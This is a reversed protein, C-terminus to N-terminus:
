PNQGNKEKIAKNIKERLSLLYEASRPYNRFTIPEIEEEIMKMVFERGYLSECLKFARLDQIADFFVILRISEWATGDPGPYVSFADGAPSFYEADTNMFPNVLAFSLQNNYFNYGWQLFGDINYKYFQTGIVRTRYSPMALFRNSVDHHEGICYYCWLDPVNNEIFPEIHLTSPIPREVTGSSYFEYSSLADIIPYGELLPAVIAKASLYGDLQAETPEDSIHFWCRKDAGNQSKMFKLFEPIFVNLFEKYEEGCADTEWGFIKKYEGDVTAMIKPAYKAGWQTFFHSIEFYKVGVRDCMEVWRELLSFDFSYKGNERKVGVLQMTDREGGIATDLPPTFVPTLLMNIGYRVATKAFNEIIRFHEDSFTQVRYHNKLCDCHFWQTFKLEQEPLFADIIELQFTVKHVTKAENDETFIFTIPYIGAEVEGKTDVEVMLSKLNKSAVLRGNTELPQMIDPYLGPTDRLYDGDNEIAAFQVPAVEIRSVRVYKEIPSEVTMYMYTKWDDKPNDTFCIEFHFLENKLCSGSEYGKKDKIDEDLFCKELSSILKIEM